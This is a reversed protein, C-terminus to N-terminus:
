GGRGPQPSSVQRLPRSIRRAASVWFASCPPLTSSARGHSSQKLAAMARKSFRFVSGLNVSIIEDWNENELEHISRSGGIGANNVLIDLAGFANAAKAM